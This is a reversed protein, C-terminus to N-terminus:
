ANWLKVLKDKSGSAIYQGNKSYVVSKVWSQQGSLSKDVQSTEFDWIKITKDQSGSAM